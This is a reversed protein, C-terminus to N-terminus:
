GRLQALSRGELLDMRVIAEPYEVRRPLSSLRAGPPPQFVADPVLVDAPPYQLRHRARDPVRLTFDRLQHNHIAVDGLAFPRFFLELVVQKM